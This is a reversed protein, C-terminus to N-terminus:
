KARKPRKLYGDKIWANVMVFSASRLRNPGGSQDVEGVHGLFSRTLMEATVRDIGEYASFIAATNYVAQVTATCQVSAYFGKGDDAQALLCINEMKIASEVPWGDEEAGVVSAPILLFLLLAILKRM